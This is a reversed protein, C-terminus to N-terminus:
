ETCWRLSLCWDLGQISRDCVIILGDTPVCCIFASLPPYLFSIAERSDECSLLLLVPDSRIFSFAFSLLFRM